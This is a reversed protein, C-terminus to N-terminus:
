MKAKGPLDLHGEEVLRAGKDSLEWIGRESTSRFLGEKVLVSREWCVANLWRAEGTKVPEYDVESLRDKILEYVYKCVQKKSASKELKYVAWMLAPRFEKQPLKVGRRASRRPLKTPPPAGNIPQTKASIEHGEAADLVRQIATDPTDVLPEAWKKLRNWTEDSIRITPMM